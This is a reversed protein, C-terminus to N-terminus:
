ETRPRIHGPLLLYGESSLDAVLVVMLPISQSGSQGGEPLVLVLEDLHLLLSRRLYIGILDLCQHDPAIGNLVGDGLEGM